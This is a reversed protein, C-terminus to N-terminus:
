KIKGQVKLEILRNKALRTWLSQAYLSDMQDYKKQADAWSGKAEDLRGADFIARPAVTSDKYSTYVQVYLKQAGEKDGKEELCIAANFLSVAALYSKPFGTAVARYDKGAGDWDKKAYGVEARIFLGREAGYQRPYRAIVRNLRDLLDKELAAKKTADSEGQWKVYLDQAGEVLITSSSVLKKNVETYVLYGVLFVAAAILIVWLAIRFRDVTHALFNSIRRRIPEQAAQQGTQQVPQM